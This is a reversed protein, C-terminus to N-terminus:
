HFIKHKQTSKVASGVCSVNTRCILQPKTIKWVYKELQAKKEEGTLPKIEETSEAFNQHGTRAAHMQFLQIHM